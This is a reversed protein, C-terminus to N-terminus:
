INTVASPGLSSPPHQRGAARVAITEVLFAANEPNEPMGVRRRQGREPQMRQLMAALLRGADDGIVALLEARMAAGTQDAVIEARLVDDRAQGARHRDAMHAIRRGALDRQAVDLRQEGIEIEAPERDAVVAIQRVGVLQAPLQHPAAAQELRGAVGLDDDVQDRRAQLVGDDLAQGVRQALDLAGIRQHRQRLLRQDPHAVRQAHPRQHEAPEAVRPDEDDSVQARSMMSASNTRSTSGPSITMMPAPPTRLTLGNAGSGFRSQTKSYM